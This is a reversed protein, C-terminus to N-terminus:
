VEVVDNLNTISLILYHIMSLQSNNVEASTEMIRNLTYKCRLDACVIYPTSRLRDRKRWLQVTPIDSLPM